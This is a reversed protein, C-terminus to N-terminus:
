KTDDNIFNLYYSNNELFYIKCLGIRQIESLLIPNINDQDLDFLDTNVM